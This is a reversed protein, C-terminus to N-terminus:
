SRFTIQGPILIELTMYSQYCQNDRFWKYMIINKDNSTISETHTSHHRYTGIVKANYATRGLECIFIYVVTLMGAPGTPGTSGSPSPPGTWGTAGKPGSAGPRGSQGQSGPPGSQGTPGSSGAM